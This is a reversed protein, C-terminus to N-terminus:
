SPLPEVVTFPGNDAVPYASPGEPLCLGDPGPPPPTLGGVTTQLGNCTKAAMTVFLTSTHTGVPLPDFAPSVPVAYPLGPFQSPPLDGPVNGFQVKDKGITVGPEVGDIVYRASVFNTKFEKAKTEDAMVWPPVARVWQEGVLATRCGPGLDSTAPVPPGLIREKVSYRLNLDQWKKDKESASFVPSLCSPRTPKPEAAAGGAVLGASLGLATLIACAQASRLVAITM